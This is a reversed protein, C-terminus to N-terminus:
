TFRAEVVTNGDVHVITLAGGAASVRDADDLRSACADSEFRTAVVLQTEVVMASVVVEPAGAHLAAAVSGTVLRYAAREVEPGFRRGAIPEIDLVLVLDTQEAFSIIAEFLGADDLLPPVAGHAVRRLSALASTAHDLAVDLRAREEDSSRQALAGLQMGLALLRQQAGDHLDRELRRRADDGREVV